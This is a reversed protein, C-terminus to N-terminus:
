VPAEPGNVQGPSVLGTEYATIVLQTRSSLHLKQMVHYLHSKVTLEALGLNRAIDANSGGRAVELLVDLERNTLGSLETSADRVGLSAFRTLLRRTVRPALLAEGAAVTHVARVLEEPPADKLLFGSAGARLAAYVYEDLDHVTLMIVSTGGETATMIERAASIGDMGPMRVDMLVVDPRRRRVAAVAAAGDEAEALVRLDPEASLLAVLGARIMAQDDAVLVTTEAPHEM